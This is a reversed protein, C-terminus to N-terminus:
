PFHRDARLRFKLTQLIEDAQRNEKPSEIMLHLASGEPQSIKLGSQKLLFYFAAASGPSTAGTIEISVPSGAAKMVAAEAIQKMQGFPYANWGSEDRFFDRQRQAPGTLLFILAFGAIIDLITRPAPLGADTKKSIVYSIYLYIFYVFYILSFVGGALTNLVPICLFVLYYTQIEGPARAMGACSFLWLAATFVTFIIFVRDQSTGDPNRSFIWRAALIRLAMLILCAALILTWSAHSGLLEAFFREMARHIEAWGHLGPNSMLSSAIRRFNSANSRLADYIPPWWLFLACVISIASQRGLQRIFFLRENSGMRRIQFILLGAITSFSAAAAPVQSIETQLLFTVVVTWVWLLQLRYEAIAITLWLLLALLPLAMGHGWLLKILLNAYIGGAAFYPLALSVIMSGSVRYFVCSLFVFMLCKFASSVLHLLEIDGGCFFLLVANFYHFMPGPHRFGYVSPYGTKIFVGSQIRLATDILDAQDAGFSIQDQTHHQIIFLYFYLAGASAFLAIHQLKVKM